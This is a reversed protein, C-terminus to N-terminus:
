KKNKNKIKKERCEGAQRYRDIDINITTDTINFALWSKYCSSVAKHLTMKIKM